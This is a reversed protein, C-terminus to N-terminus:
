SYHVTRWARLRQRASAHMGTHRLGAVAPLGPETLVVDRPAVTVSPRYDPNRAFYGPRAYRWGPKAAHSWPLSCAVPAHLGLNLVSAGSCRQYLWRV